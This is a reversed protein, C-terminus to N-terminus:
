ESNENTQEDGTKAFLPEWRMLAGVVVLIGGSVIVLSFASQIASVIAGIAQVRVADDLTAFLTSQAGAVASQVDGVTYGLGALVGQLNRVATGQFIQGAVVLSIMTSGVQSVNQLSIANGMDAPDVILTAVAYGIQLSLGTGFGGLVSLGYIIRVPTAPQLYVFFLAGSVTLTLGSLLYFLKYYLIKALLYGSALNVFVTVLIFPLLRVAALLATDNNVFQFYVPIYYAPVYLTAICASAAVYLLLTTVSVRRRRADFSLLHAPFSRTAPTTWWCFYQQAAYLALLAGCVVLTAITRGDRWAWLGGASVLALGFTVWVAASLVFGVYDLTALRERVTKGTIPHIAPLYVVYIPATVAGIILNLYFAWRWTAGSTSLAGGVVPGLISGIGWVFTIGTIYTGRTQASTLATFHTLGGLYMGTGGAGALVRGVILAGMSPAGGCLASGAQFLVIGGIYLWKMNFTTFLRGYPLIVAVSGLPFGAGLWTLQPVSGFTEVVASQVDAAITTDLGYMFVSLYLALCVLIWRVGQIDPHGERQRHDHHQQPRLESESSGRPADAHKEVDSSSPSALSTM